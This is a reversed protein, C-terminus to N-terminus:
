ASAKESSVLSTEFTIFESGSVVSDHNTDMLTLLGQSTSTNSDSGTNGLANLLESNSITGNDNTDISQFLQDAQTSTAGYNALVSDFNAQSLEGDAPSTAGSAKAAAVQQAYGAPNMLNPVGAASVLEVTIGESNFKAFAQADPSLTVTSSSENSAPAGSAAGTSAAASASPARQTGYISQNASSGISSISMM